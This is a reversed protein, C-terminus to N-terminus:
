FNVVAGLSPEIVIGNAPFMFMFGVNLVAGVRDSVALLAGANASVFGQGMKKWADVRTEPLKQWAFAPDGDSSPPRTDGAVCDDFNGNASADWALALTDTCDREVVTTKADVQAFGLGAGVYASLPREGLPLFWLNARVELHVPTFATGGRGKARDSLLNVNGGPAFDVPEQGAPPGGGLAVGVRTGLSFSPVLAADYSLLVRTTALVPGSELGDEYPYPTHLFPEDSSGEYFCAYNDTKQGINADCVNSGGVIAIDQAVHLGVWHRRPPKLPAPSVPKPEPAPVPEPPKPPPAQETLTTPVEPAPRAQGVVGSQDRALNGVALSVIRPVDGMDSPMPLYRELSGRETRYRVVLRREPDVAIGLESAGPEGPGALPRGLEKEVAARIDAQPLSEASADFVLVLGGEEGRAELAVLLMGLTLAVM